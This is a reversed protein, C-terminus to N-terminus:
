TRVQKRMARVAALVIGDFSTREPRFSTPLASTGRKIVIDQLERIEDYTTENLKVSKFSM